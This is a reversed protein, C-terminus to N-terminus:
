TASSVAGVQLEEWRGVKGVWSGKVQPPPSLHPKCTSPSGLVRKTSRVMPPLTEGHKSTLGAQSPQKDLTQICHEALTTSAEHTILCTPCSNNSSGHPRTAPPVGQCSTTSGHHSTTSTTTNRPVESSTLIRCCLHLLTSNRYVSTSPNTPAPM